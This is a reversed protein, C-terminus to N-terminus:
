SFEGSQLAGPETLSTPSGADVSLSFLFPPPCRVGTQGGCACMHVLVRVFTFM